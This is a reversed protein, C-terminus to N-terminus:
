PITKVGQRFKFDWYWQKWLPPKDSEIITIRHGKPFVTKILEVRVSFGNQSGAFWEEVVVGNKKTYTHFSGSERKLQSKVSTLTAISLPPAEYSDSKYSGSVIFQRNRLTEKYTFGTNNVVEHAIKSLKRPNGKKWQIIM